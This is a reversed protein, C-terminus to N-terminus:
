RCAHDGGTDLHFHNAHDANYDPGLTVDFLGCAGEHIERLFRGKPGEDHYDKLVSILRGDALRFGAVDVAMASAHKSLQHTGAVNRCSFTGLSTVDAVPSGLWKEAAPAVVQMQWLYFRAATECTMVMAEGNADTASSLAIANSYGCGNADLRNSVREYKVGIRDLGERCIEADRSLRAFEGLESRSWSRQLNLLVPAPESAAAEFDPRVFASSRATSAEGRAAAFVVGALVASFAAAGLAAMHAM